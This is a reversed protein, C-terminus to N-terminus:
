EIEEVDPADTELIVFEVRRNAEYDEESEEPSVLPHEEGFGEAILREAEIGKRILYRMVARARKGSLRKNYRDKGRTDTHGEIRIKKIQPNTRLVHAVDDLVEFSKPMIKAERYYFYVKELIVIKKGEVKAKTDPCGDDDQKGNVTEAEDPCRDEGRCQEAYADAKGSGAVWPDCIKDKDNDPDPCGDKDEFQDVDEPESPCADSKTCVSAYADASGSAAVWEDCIGDGDNDADPCGDEDEFGDKDEPQDPCTDKGSCESKYTITEGQEEVWPDCIGDGDNDPEPCGDMDEHSDPDEPELPCEDDPDLLGDQDSDLIKPAEKKPRTIQVGAIVRFQPTGYGRTAGIGGGLNVHVWDVPYFRLGGIPELSIQEVNNFPKAALTSSRLEGIIQLKQKLVWLYVGGNLLLEDHVDLNELEVNKVMRYGLNLTMGFMKVHISAAITPVFTVSESGTFQNTLGGTPFTVTPLAALAFIKSKTRFLRFKNHLRIDGMGGVGPEEQGAIGEGQQYVLFPIAVGVDWWKMPSFAAVFDGMAQHAVIARAIRETGTGAGEERLVLPNHQYNLYLGVNWHLQRDETDGLHTIYLDNMFPSPTFAQTNISEEQAFSPSALLLSGAVAVLTLALLRRGDRRRTWLLGTLLLVLWGWPTGGRNSDGVRSVSCSGGSYIFRSGCKDGVDDDNLDKQDPNPIRECNDEENPVGDGDLDDDCADGMADNDIDSQDLNRVDPCNDNENAIGDGDRDDAPDPIGDGSDVPETDPAGGDDTVGGDVGTVRDDDGLNPDTGDIMVETGDDVGGDDTDTDLPDTTGVGQSAGTGNVEEGDQLGDGDTDPNNPDTEGSGVTGTGGITNTVRGNGDADEDGDRLGDGDTDPNNPDTTTTPDSDPRWSTAGTDTGSTVIGGSIGGNVPTEVGVELGDFLLDDDSDSDLPDTPGSATLLGTGNVEDGDSLGDDDSDADLPNTDVGDTYVRDTGVEEGDQLGDGDTDPNNPDTGILAEEDDLLSDGDSDVGAVLTVTAENSVGGETDYVVYTFSDNGPLNEVPTYTVSGTVPDVSILGSSPVGTVTVTTADLVGDPDSDNALVDVSVPAGALVQVNDDAATPASNLVEISTTQLGGIAANGDTVESIGGDATVTAQNAVTRGAGPNVTVEFTVTVVGPGGPDTAAPVTFGSVRVPGGESIIAAVSCAVSAPVLTTGAPISDTLTVNTADGQGINRIDITYRLTTNPRPAGGGVVEVRKLPSLMPNEGVVIIDLTERDDLGYVYTDIFTNNSESGAAQTGWAHANIGALAPDTVAGSSVGDPYAEDLNFTTRPEIFTDNWFMTAPLIDTPDDANFIRIGPKSSEIDVGVFHYEGTRLSLMASHAGEAMPDGENDLGNFVVENLGVTVRGSLLIDLTTPDYIGDDNADIFIAYTGSVDSTFFFSGQDQVGVTVGPSISNDVNDDDLFRFDTIVPPGNIGTAKAPHNLYVDLEPTYSNGAMPVSFGAVAVGAGNPSDVGTYSGAVEYAYGALGSLDLMWVYDEGPKGGPVYVFYNANTSNPFSGANFSWNTSFLRGGYYTQATQGTGGGTQDIVGDDDADTACPYVLEDAAGTVTIDFPDINSGDADTGDVDFEIRYVGASTTVHQLTSGAPLPCVVSQGFTDLFGAGDRILVDDVVVGSMPDTVTVRVDRGTDNALNNGAAINIVEGPNEVDLFLVTGQRVLSDATYDDVTLDQDVGVQSTGEALAVGAHITLAIGLLLKPLQALVAGMPTPHTMRM